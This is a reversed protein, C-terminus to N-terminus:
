LDPPLLKELTSHSDLRGDYPHFYSFSIHQDDVYTIVVKGKHVCRLIGKEIYEVFVARSNTIEEPVWKGGCSLSPYEIEYVNESINASLSITWTHPNPSIQLGIGEWSGNMWTYSRPDHQMVPLLNGFAPFFSVHAYYQKEQM